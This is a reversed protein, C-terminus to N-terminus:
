VSYWLNSLVKKPVLVAELSNQNPNSLRIALPM